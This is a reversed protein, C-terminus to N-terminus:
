EQEILSAEIYIDVGDLPAISGAPINAGRRWDQVAQRKTEGAVLFMVHRADSLRNASLTVREPPPKPADYVPLAVPADARTGWPHNPFLSATHGDEGLGLLVLDFRGTRSLESAYRKAAAEAGLEGPIMHVHHTLVPVHRLWTEMVMRSNREPHDVPLCREDGLYIHWEHWHAHTHALREYIMRPTNGGSLVLHFEGRAAIALRAIHLIAETAVRELELASEVGHWRCEQRNDMLAM